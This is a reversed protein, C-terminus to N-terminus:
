KSTRGSGYKELRFAVTQKRLSFKGVDSFNKALQSRFARGFLVMERVVAAFLFVHLVFQFGASFARERGERGIGLIM